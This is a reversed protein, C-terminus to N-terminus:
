KMGGGASGFGEDKESVERGREIAMPDENSERRSDILLGEGGLRVVGDRLRMGTTSSTSGGSSRTDVVM